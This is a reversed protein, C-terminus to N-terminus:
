ADNRKKGTHATRQFHQVPYTQMIAMSQKWGTWTALGQCIVVMREENLSRCFQSMFPHENANIGFMTYTYIAKHPLQCAAWLEAIGLPEGERRVIRTAVTKARQCDHDFIASSAIICRKSRSWANRYSPGQIVTACPANDTQQFISTDQTWGSIFGFSGFVGSAVVSPVSNDNVDNASRTRNRIFNGICRPRLGSEPAAGFYRFYDRRTPQTQYHSCM